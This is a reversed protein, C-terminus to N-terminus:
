HSALQENSDTLSAGGSRKQMLRVRSVKAVRGSQAFWDPSHCRNTGGGVPKGRGLMALSCIDSGYRAPIRSRDPSMIRYRNKEPVCVGRGVLDGSSMRLDRSVATSRICCINGWASLRLM